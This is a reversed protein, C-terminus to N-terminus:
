YDCIIQKWVETIKGRMAWFFVMGTGLLFTPELFGEPGLLSQFSSSSEPSTSAGTECSQRQSSWVSELGLMDPHHEELVLTRLHEERLTFM